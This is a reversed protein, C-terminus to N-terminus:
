PEYLDYGVLLDALHPASLVGYVGDHSVSRSLDVILSRLQALSANESVAALLNDGYGTQELRLQRLRPWQRGRILNPVNQPAQSDQLELYELDSLGPWANLVAIAEEGMRWISKIGLRTLKLHPSALLARLGKETPHKDSSDPGLVDFGLGRLKSLGASHALAELGEDGFNVMQLTLDTIRAFSPHDLLRFLDSASLQSCILVLRHLKPLLNGDLLNILSAVSTPQLVLTEVNPFNGEAALGALASEPIELMKVKSFGKALDKKGFLGDWDRFIGRREETLTLSTIPISYAAFLTAGIESLVSPPFTAINEHPTKNSTSGGEALRLAMVVGIHQSDFYSPIISSNDGKGVQELRKACDKSTNRLPGTAPSLEYLWHGTRQPKLSIWAGPFFEAAFASVSLFSALVVVQVFLRSARM